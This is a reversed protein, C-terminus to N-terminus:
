TTLADSSKPLLLGAWSDMSVWVVWPSLLPQWSFGHAVWPVYPNDVSVWPYGMARAQYCFRGELGKSCTRALLVLEIFAATITCFVADAKM